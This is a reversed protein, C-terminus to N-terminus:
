FPLEHGEFSPPPPRIDKFQKLIRKLPYYCSTRHTKCSVILRILPVKIVQTSLLAQDFATSHNAKDSLGHPNTYKTQTLRLKTATQNMEKVFLCYSSQGYQAYARQLENHRSNPKMRQYIQQHFNEALTVAADNGSPLMLGFLLDYITLRQNEVLNATTGGTNFARRSVRFWTGELDLKLEQALGIAVFCTMMKTLSAM